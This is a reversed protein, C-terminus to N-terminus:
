VGGKVPPVYCCEKLLRDMETLEEPRVKINEFEKANSLLNFLAGESMNPKIGSAPDTFTEITEVNVYFHSAVRGLNTANLQGTAKDYRVMRTERLRRACRELLERRWRDMTPDVHKEEWGVGYALPNRKIRM